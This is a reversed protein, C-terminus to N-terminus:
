KDNKFESFFLVTNTSSYLIRAIFQSPLQKAGVARSCRGSHLPSPNRGGCKPIRVHEGSLPPSFPPHRQIRYPSFQLRQTPHSPRKRPETPCLRFSTGKKHKFKGEEKSNRASRVIYWYNQGSRMRLTAHLLFPPMRNVM